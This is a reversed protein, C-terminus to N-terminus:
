REWQDVMSGWGANIEAIAAPLDRRASKRPSVLEAELKMGDRYRHREPRGHANDYLCVPHRRGCREILLVAAWDMEKEDDWRWRPSIWAGHGIKKEFRTERNGV